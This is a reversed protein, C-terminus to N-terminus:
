DGEGYDIYYADSLLETEREEHDRLRRILVLVDDLIEALPGEVCARTKADVADIADLFQAHEEFIKDLSGLLFPAVTTVDERLGDLAEESAFHHELQHRLKELRPILKHPDTTKGLREVAEELARHEDAIRALSAKPAAEKTSTNTTSM